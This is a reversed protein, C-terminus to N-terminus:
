GSGEEYNTSAASVLTKLIEESETPAQRHPSKDQTLVTGLGVAPKHVCGRVCPVYVCGCSRLVLMDTNPLHVLMQPIIPPTVKFEMCSEIM